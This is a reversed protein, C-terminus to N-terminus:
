RTIFWVGVPELGQRAFYKTKRDLDVTGYVGLQLSLGAQQATLKATDLMLKGARTKRALPHVYNWYDGIFKDNSSWPESIGLGMTAVLKGDLEVVYVVGNELCDAIRDMVKKESFTWTGVEGHMEQLMNYIAKFDDNTATRLIM